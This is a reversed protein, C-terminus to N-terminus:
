GLFLFRLWVATSGTSRGRLGSDLLLYFNNVLFMFLIFVLKM